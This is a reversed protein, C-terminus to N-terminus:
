ILAYIFIEYKEIIHVTLIKKTTFNKILILKPLHINIKIFTKLLIM